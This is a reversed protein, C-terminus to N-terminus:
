ECDLLRGRRAHSLVGFSKAGLFGGGDLRTGLTSESIRQAVERMTARFLFWPPDKSVWLRRSGKSTVRTIRSFVCRRHSTLTHRRTTKQRRKITFQTKRKRMRHYECPHRLHEFRRHRSACCAPRDVRDVPVRLHQEFVSVRRLLPSALLTRTPFVSPNNSPLDFDACHQLECVACVSRRSTPNTRFTEECQTLIKM